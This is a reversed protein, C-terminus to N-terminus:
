GEECVEGVILFLSLFSLENDEARQHVFLLVDWRRDPLKMTVDLTSLASLFYSSGFLLPILDSM